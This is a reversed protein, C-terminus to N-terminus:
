PTGRTWPTEESAPVGLREAVVDVWRVLREREAPMDAFLADLSGLGATDLLRKENCVWQGRECLIAAYDRM